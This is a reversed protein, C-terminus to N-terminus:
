CIGGSQRQPPCGVYGSGGAVPLPSIKPLAVDVEVFMLEHPFDLLAEEQQPDQDNSLVDRWHPKRKGTLSRSWGIYTFASDPQARAIPIHHVAKTNELSM